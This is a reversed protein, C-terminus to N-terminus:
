IVRNALKAILICLKDVAYVLVHAGAKVANGCTKGCQTRLHSGAAAVRLTLDLATEALGVVVRSGIRTVNDLSRM